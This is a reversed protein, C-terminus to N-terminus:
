AVRSGSPAAPSKVVAGLHALEALHDGRGPRDSPASRRAGSRMRRTSNPGSAARQHGIQQPLRGRGGGAEQPPGHSAPRFWGPAARQRCAAANAPAPAGSQVPLRSDTAASAARDRRWRTRRRQGDALERRTSPRQCSRKTPRRHRRREEAEATVQGAGASLAPPSPMTSTLSGARATAHAIPARRFLWPPRQASAM